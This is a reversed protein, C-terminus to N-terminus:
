HVACMLASEIGLDGAPLLEAARQFLAGAPYDSDLTRVHRFKHALYYRQLRTNSTWVDIRIWLKGHRAARDCCWDLMKAGLERGGYSRPVIMRHVYYAPEAAEATTWLHPDRFEDIALTGAINPGDYVMWTEGAAISGTIREAQQDPTPWAAQWQSSGTKSIWQAAEDRMRLIAALDNPQAPKIKM